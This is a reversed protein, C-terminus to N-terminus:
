SGPEADAKIKPTPVLPEPLPPNKQGVVKNWLLRFGNGYVKQSYVLANLPSSGIEKYLIYQNAVFLVLLTTLTAYAAGILGYQSIFLYNFIINLIASAIVMFFNVQPKGISDMIVGFQRAFPILLGYLMTLRLLPVADLYKDGAVVELVFKPFLIVFLIGPIIIALIVGVSKEYLGKISSSGEKEAIQASKPFVIAAVSQTPVEILNAIKIATGYVATAVPNLILGLMLQDISKNLMSAINTGLVFKGYWFLEKLWDRDLKGSFVLYKKGLFIAVVSGAFASIIQAVALYMLSFPENRLYVYLVYGFFLGSRVLNSLFIAKFDLNAQQIVQFQVMPILAVNTFIFLYLIQDLVHVQFALDAVQALIFVVLSTLMTVVLNLVVSATNIRGKVKEDEQTTLYKVLANQILGFRLVEIISTIILFITWIGFLQRTLGRVLLYFSGFRFLQLAFKELFTYMGSKLWYSGKIKM